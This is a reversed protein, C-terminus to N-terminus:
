GCTAGATNDRLLTEAGTFAGFFVTGTEIAVPAARVMTPTGVNRLIALMAKPGRRLSTTSVPTSNAVLAVGTSPCRPTENPSVQVDLLERTAAEALDPQ